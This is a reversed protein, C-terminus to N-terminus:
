PKAAPRQTALAACEAFIDRGYNEALLRKSVDNYGEVYARQGATAVCGGVVNVEVGYRQDLLRAYENLDEAEAPPRPPGSYVKVEYHGRSHDLHGMIGGRWYPTFYWLAALAAVVAATVAWARGSRPLMVM